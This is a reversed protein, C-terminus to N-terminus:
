KAGGNKNEAKKAPKKAAEAAQGPDARKTKGSSAYYGKYYGKYGTKSSQAGPVVALLPYGKYVQALYEESNITTDMLEAVVVVGAALL